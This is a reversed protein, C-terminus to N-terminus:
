LTLIFDIIKLANEANTMDLKNERVFQKIQEKHEPFAKYVSKLGKVAHEKGNKTFYYTSQNKSRWVDLNRGNGDNQNTGFTGNYMGGSIGAITGMGFQDGLQVKRSPAQSVSGLAGVYGEHIKTIHWGVLLREGNERDIIECFQKDKYVWRSGGMYLTDISEPATAEMLQNGQMFMLKRNAI